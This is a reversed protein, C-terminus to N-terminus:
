PRSDPSLIKRFLSEPIPKYAYPNPVVEWNEIVSMKEGTIGTSFLVVAGFRRNQDPQFCRLYNLTKRGIGKQKAFV